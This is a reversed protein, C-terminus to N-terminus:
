ENPLRELTWDAAIAIWDLRDQLEKVTPAHHAFGVLLPHRQTGEKISELQLRIEQMTLTTPDCEVDWTAAVADPLPDTETEMSSMVAAPVGQNLSCNWQHSGIGGCVPCPRLPTNEKGM